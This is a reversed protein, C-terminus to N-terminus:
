EYRLAHMPDVKSARHAPIFGAGIAVVALLLGTGALVAPDSGELEFLMSQALRGLGLGIFLGITGGVLTMRRVQRLVTGRVRGPAAGLAMRLGIERTRQSVTYALVGYLGVSALLTALVAFSSSLVGIVRDVVVNDRVQGEMTQLDEMPLDPDLRAVTPQILGLIVEPAISTRVYFNNFGLDDDQRYPIVFLPPVEAKVDNYKANRALGVIEVDLDDGFTAMRKGVVNKGLNFKEAFRENVIAVEPAGLADAETFERGAILPMKLTRYYDVGVQNYRSNSDIDPGNEFGQVQVDTGWSSGGILPVMATSVGSVGPITALEEELRAFLGRSQQPTYGNLQPSIGFTILNTPDMGLDVRSVNYLSRIFLGASILLTMSLAIQATALVSRFRAASRSGSPQGTQSKLTSVVDPRTSHLAPFLGFLIGTGLTVVAAFLLVTGDIGFPMAAADQAPLLSAILDLTWRAVVLGGGGGLGALLLSETLLQAILQPRNAGISLRVAMEGSRAAARALLLNAVNACAILLVFTTVGLLLIPPAEAGGHTSSQGRHGPEILVQKARFREMTQDSMGEQLPAEVENVIGQYLVNLGTRAQEISVGSKLRAFLYAWYSRRNEFADFGSLIGRMTIPVFIRPRSGLTTGEFGEPTVGVITMPQGNVILTEGVVRPSADFRERWYSFSLVVVPSEGVASDDGTGILRGVAPNLGLVSFYSGSVLMGQSSATQGRYALNAGFIRHAAIGTFVTQERGLDRFMAYSFVVDCNGADNCSQSGPKPGPAALNVLEYPDAVPMPSLLMQNFISFIAVNAGIGLALSAIAVATVLPTKILTRFAFKLKSM